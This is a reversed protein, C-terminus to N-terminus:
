VPDIACGSESDLVWGSDGRVLEIKVVSGERLKKRYSSFSSAFCVASVSGRWAQVDFFAMPNGKRDQWKKVAEIRGVFSLLRNSPDNVAARIDHAPEVRALPEDFIRAEDSRLASAKWRAHLDSALFIAVLRATGKRGPPVAVRALVPKGACKGVTTEYQEMEHPQCRTRLDRGTRDTLILSASLGEDSTYTKSERVVAAVWALPGDKGAEDLSTLGTSLEVAAWLDGYADLAGHGTTLAGAEVALRGKEMPTWDPTGKSMAIEEDAALGDGKRAAKLLRDINEIVFRRNPILSDLAGAQVLVKIVRSNVSRSETREVLDSFSRFPRSAALSEGAKPGIGKLGAVPPLVALDDNLTYADVSDNVDPPLIEVGDRSAAEVIRAVDTQDDCSQLLGLYFAEPHRRKIWMQWYALASYEAAHARNFGYGGFKLIRAFLKRAAEADMGKGIAAGTFRAEEPRLSAEGKSKGIKKRIADAEAASYDALLRFVAMVQEQFVLVGLTAGTVEDLIPHKAKPRKGKIARSVYIEALGSRMAGPRNLANLVILDEFRRIPFRMLSAMGTSDFQFIGVRKGEDDFDALVERDDYRTSELDEITLPDDYRSAAAALAHRIATLNTLGLVDLKVLGFDQADRYDVAIVPERGDGARAARSELPVIGDLDEPAAIVGGAHLGVHRLTGELRTAIRAVMPRRTKFQKCTSSERMSDAICREEGEEGQLRVLISKAVRDAERAPVRYVRCVDRFTARGKMRNFTSIGATRERGYKDVLYQIVEGRREHEFDLDIDPLDIRGPALFREFTLGHEMPDIGTIGLLFVALSGGASGRGPGTMIGSSRAWRVVDEVILFYRDIKRDRFTKLEHALREKYSRLVDKKRRGDRRALAAAREEIGRWRWGAAVLKILEAHDEEPTTDTGTPSPLRAALPDLDLRAECRSALTFTNAVAAEVVADDMWPHHRKFALLTEEGTRCWFDHAHFAFRDPNDVYDKTQVCLLAEQLRWDKPRAYHTDVTALLNLGMRKAISVLAKNARDQEPLSTAMVEVFFRDRGFTDLLREANAVALRPDGALFPEALPGSLCASGVAIGESHEALADLDIRPRYYFGENWARSSLKILNALGTDDLAWATLHWRATIGLRKELAATAKRRDKKEVGDLGAKKEADTLSKRRMDSAVYFEVGFVPRMGWEDATKQLRVIGRMTGHETAALFRVPAGRDKEEGAPPSKAGTLRRAYDEYSGVGDLLSHESHVHLNAWGSM